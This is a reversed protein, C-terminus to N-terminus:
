RGRGELRPTLAPDGLLNFGQVVPGTRPDEALSRAKARRIAEGLSVNPRKLEAYLRDYFAAQVDRDTIGAPGFSALAGGTPNLFLAQNVTPGWLYQYFQSECAWTLFISGSGSLARADDVDLLRQDSWAEPGGHGFYHTVVAGRQLAAELERHAADAGDGVNVFTPATAHLVQAVRHAEAGFGAAGDSVFLQRRAARALAQSQGAIKAVVATAEDATTVPLRGVAVDPAGDGDVDAYGNESPVRGFEGDWGIPSPVFVFAGAGTVDDFDFSDGGVLVVYRLGGSAYAARVLAAVARADVIGGSYRDYARAVDVVAPHRGEAQKLAALARAQPLFSAHSVILYDVNALSVGLGPEYPELGALTADVTSLDQAAGVDVHALYAFGVDDPGDGQSAYTVQLENGAALLTSGPVSGNLVVVGSGDFEVSGLPAGNITASISHRVANATWFSVRVPVDGTSPVLGPLDFRGANPASTGAYPWASGDGILFDWLWPDTGLPANPVYVSSKRARVFGRGPGVEPLTLRVAAHPAASGWTLVYANVATYSTWLPQADFSITENSLGASTVTMPVPRGMSTLNLRSAPIERPVGYADLVRRALAIRGAGRTLIKLGQAQRGGRPATPAFTPRARAAGRQVGRARLRAATAGLATELRTGGVPFPGMLRTRGQLDTEEVFVYRAAVTRTKASYLVPTLSHPSSAAIPAPNLLVLDRRGERDNTAYLNFSKTGHQSSTVFEVLGGRDVKLGAISAHTLIPVSPGVTIETQDYNNATSTESTTTSVTATGVVPTGATTGANVQVVFTLLMAAGAPYAGATYNCTMAAPPVAGVAPPTCTWGAPATFSQYNANVPVPVNVQTAAAAVGGLNSVAVNFTVSAGPSVVYETTYIQVALDTPVAVISTTVSSSDNSPNPDTEGHTVTATNTPTGAATATTTVKITASAGRALGGLACSVTPSAFSCTGQSPVASVYTVNAIPLPDSVNVNTAPDPGNNKVVLTYTLTGGVNTTGSDTKVIGVDAAVAAGSTALCEAGSSIGPIEDSTIGIARRGDTGPTAGFADLVTTTLGNDGGSIDLAAPSSSLLIAGGAGGGGPGHREGPAGNPAHTSWADGGRGGRAQVTLGSVGSAFAVVIVGGGGGGGGGGDNDPSLGQEGDAQIRGTGAITGARILVLGGGQGGSSVMLATTTNNRSGAGGGGGLTALNPAPILLEGGFGGSTLNSNWSNGGLGGEGGGGGGGGGSNEDNAAPNGDTGGGGANGPAGRGMSGNPYGEAGTTFVATATVVGTAPSASPAAVTTYTFTTTTPVTAITFFGNYATQRAGAIAVTAGVALGHAVNTTATATTGAATLSSLALAGYYYQPTGAIGEAKSGNAANSALTRYDTSAGAGGGVARGGGGHFGVGSVNIGTRYATITGTAAAAPYAVTNGPTSYIAYTFTSAGTVTIAYTGNYPAENAGEITVVDGSAYGHAASTTATAVNNTRTVSSVTRLTDNAMTLTDRVDMVLVGGTTGNWPTATLTGFSAAFSVSTYQPVRVVQFRRQGQTATAAANTYAYLTGNATGVGKVGVAGGATTIASTAIVYEYQGVNNLNTSGRAPDGAAGDGYAGSNTSDIAADQMQIVLLLDNIAIGNAAGTAAGVTISTAGAAVSATGPYYSNVVVAGSASLAGDKGPTPPCAFPQTVGVTAVIKNNAGIPDTTASGVVATSRVTTGTAGTGDYQVRVFFTGSAGSALRPTSCSLTGGYTGVGPVSSCTWGAPISVSQFQLLTGPFTETFTATTATSPGDNRVVITYNIPAAAGSNFYLSQPDISATMDAQSVVASTVSGINNGPTTPNASVYATDTLTGATLTPDVGVALSFNVSSGAALSAATCTVTGNSGVAPAACTWGAPATISTFTTGAPLPDTLTVSTAATAGSNTVVLSYTLTGGATVPDPSATLIVGLAPVNVTLQCSPGAQEVRAFAASSSAPTYTACVPADADERCEVIAGNTRTTTDDVAPGGLVGTFQFITTSSIASVVYTGNYRQDGPGSITVVDGVEYGNAVTTRAEFVGGGDNRLRNITFNTGTLPAGTVNVIGPATPTNTVEVNLTAVSGAALTAFTCQRFTTGSSDTCTAAVGDVFAAQTGTAYTMAAAIPITITVNTIASATPNSVTATILYQTQANVTPPNAGSVVVSSTTLTPEIPAAGNPNGSAPAYGNPLYTRIPRLPDVPFAAGNSTSGLYDSVRWDLAATGGAAIDDTLQWMGYDVSSQNVAATNQFTVSQSSPASVASATLATSTGLVDALTKTGVSDSGYNSPQVACGRDVFPYLLAPSSVTGAVGQPGLLFASENVSVTGATADSDAGVFVNYHAGAGDRVDVGFLNASGAGGGTSTVRLEYLGATLAACATAGSGFTTGANAATFTATGGLTANCSLRALRNDTTATDNQISITNILTKAPNYLEYRTTAATGSVTDLSGNAGADFVKVDLVTGTVEIFLKVQHVLDGTASASATTYLDFFGPPNVSAATCSAVPAGAGTCRQGDTSLNTPVGFVAANASIPDFAWVAALILVIAGIRRFAGDGHRKLVEM